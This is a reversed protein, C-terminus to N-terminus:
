YGTRGMKLVYMKKETEIQIKEPRVLAMCYKDPRITLSVQTENNNAEKNVSKENHIPEWKSKETLLLIAEAVRNQEYLDIVKCFIPLNYM